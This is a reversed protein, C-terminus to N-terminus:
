FYLQIRKAVHEVQDGRINYSESLMYTILNVLIKNDFQFVGVLLKLNETKQLTDSLIKYILGM